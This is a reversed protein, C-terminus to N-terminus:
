VKMESFKGESIEFSINTKKLVKLDHSAILVQAGESEALSLLLDIVRDSNKSDLNGTPEDAIILKPKRILARAIAVRQMEGGSLTSPYASSLHSIGLRNMLEQARQDFIETNKQLWSTVLINEIVTLSHILHFSQFIFGINELRYSALRKESFSHINENYVTIKGDKVQLLGGILALLTSKGSGSPGAIGILKKNSPFTFNMNKLIVVDGNGNRDSYSFSVNDFIISV